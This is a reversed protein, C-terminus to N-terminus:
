YRSRDSTSGMWSESSRPRRKLLARIQAPTKGRVDYGKQELKTLAENRLNTFEERKRKCEAARDVNVLSGKQPKGLHSDAAV